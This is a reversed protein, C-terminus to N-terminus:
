MCGVSLQVPTHEIGHSHATLCGPLGSPARPGPKPYVQARGPTSGAKKLLDITSIMSGGTALMPDIILAMRQDLEGVLKELYTEAELTDENRIQGVVSVRAVPILSLVGDLMGLGARLIPVITVKKISEFSAFQTNKAAVEIDILNQVKDNLILDDMSSYTVGEEAAWATINEEDLTILASLFKRKNGIVFVQNVYKSTAIVGEIAAPAINKGGATIILEKKRGTIRLFGEDDIEGIDGTLLWGDEGRQEANQRALDIASQPLGALAMLDDIKKSWAHTADLVNESFRSTLSSLEQSIEKFRQKKDAPLDVGSLHFDRLANDLVKRQGADLGDRIEVLRAGLASNIKEILEKRHGSAKNVAHELVRYRLPHLARLVRDELEHRITYIGLRNAIPIYIELTEKAIRRRKDPRLADILVLVILERDEAGRAFQM